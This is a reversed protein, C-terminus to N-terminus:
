GLKQHIAQTFREKVDALPIHRLIDDFFGYVILREAEQLPVGRAQLYFLQEPDIKGVTAGHSCRVEDNLIELGPLSAAHADESLLLNRNAQYGDIHHADPAVYIMGSWVSHGAGTLTGRFLLNSYTHHALHNQQTDHSLHQEGDAFYLGSIKSEAGPAALDVSIFHKALHSGLGGAVWDIHGDKDVKAKKHGFSWVNRGLAQLEVFKLSAGQGVYIEVNESALSQAKEGEPSSAEHVYTLSAGKELYILVHSLHALGEGAAWLLSHLTQDIQLDAPIYVFVGNKAFAGTLAAFKGEAPSIIKGLIKELLDPHKEAATNLDTFIVGKEALNPALEISVNKPGIIAQGGKNHEAHITLCHASIEDQNIEPTKGNPLHLADMRLPQLSTRRWTEDKRTPYPLRQFTDRANKRYEALVRPANGIEWAFNFQKTNQKPAM